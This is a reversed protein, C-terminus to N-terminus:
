SMFHDELKPGLAMPKDVSRKGGAGRERTNWDHKKWGLWRGSDLIGIM